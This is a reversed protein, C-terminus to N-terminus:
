TECDISKLFGKEANPHDLLKVKRTRSMIVSAVPLTCAVEVMSQYRSHYYPRVTCLLSAYCEYWLGANWTSEMGILGGVDEEAEAPHLL